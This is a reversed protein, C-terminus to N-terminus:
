RAERAARHADWVPPGGIHVVPRGRQRVIKADAGGGSTHVGCFREASSWAEADPDPQTPEPPNSERKGGNPKTGKHRKGSASFRAAHSPWLTAVGSRRTGGGGPEDGQCPASVAM